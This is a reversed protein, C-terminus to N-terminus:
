RGSPARVTGTRRLEAAVAEAVISTGAPTLHVGDRLYLKVRRGKWMVTFQHVGGPSLLLDMRAPDSPAPGAAARAIATNVASFQPRLGESDPASLTIWVVRGGFRTWTRMMIRVRRSYEAVWEEGCCPVRRDALTTMAYGDNAGVSVVTARPRLTSSQIRSTKLWSPQGPKSIGTGPRLRSVVEASSSLRDDLYGDVGQMTSDGTALVLPPRAM